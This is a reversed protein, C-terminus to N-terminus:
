EEKSKNKEEKVTLTNGKKDYTIIKVVGDPGIGRNEKINGNEYYSYEHRFFLKGQYYKEFRYLEGDKYYGICYSLMSKAEAESIEQIPKLPINYGAFSAYYVVDKRNTDSEKMDANCGSHSFIIVFIIYIIFYNKKM